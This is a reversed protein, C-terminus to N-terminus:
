IAAPLRRAAGRASVTARLPLLFVRRAARTRLGGRRHTQLAAKALAMLSSASPSGFVKAGLIETAVASAERSGETRRQLNTPHLVM